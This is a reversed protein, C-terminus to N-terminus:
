RGGGGGAGSAIADAANLLGAGASDSQRRGLGPCTPPPRHGALRSQAYRNVVAVARRAVEQLDTPQRRPPTQRAFDLLGKVIERCRKTERVIIELDQKM